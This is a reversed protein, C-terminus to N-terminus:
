NTRYNILAFNTSSLIEYTRKLRIRGFNPKLQKAPSVFKYALNLIYPRHHITIDDLQETTSPEIVTFDTYNTDFALDLMKNDDNTITNIQYLCHSNCLQIFSQEYKINRTSTGMLHGPHDQEYVWKISSMNFDGVMIIQDNPLNANIYKIIKLLEQVM